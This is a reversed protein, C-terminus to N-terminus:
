YPGRQLTSRTTTITVAGASWTANNTVPTVTITILKSTPRTNGNVTVNNQATVTKSITFRYQSDVVGAGAGGGSMITTTVPNVTANLLPDDWAVSRLQEVQQQAIALAQTRSAAASNNTISYLFLSSAGLGVVMMVIMAIVTELLTFGAESRRAARARKLKMTTGANETRM